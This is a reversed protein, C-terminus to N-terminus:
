FNVVLNRSGLDKVSKLQWPPSERLRSNMSLCLLKFNPKSRNRSDSDGPISEKALKQTHSHPISEKKFSDSATIGKKM